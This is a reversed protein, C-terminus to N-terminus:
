RGGYRALLWERWAPEFQDLPQGTVAAVWDAMSDATNFADLMLPLTERGYMELIYQVVLRSYIWPDLENQSYLEDATAWLSALSRWDVGSVTSPPQWSDMPLGLSPADLVGFQAAVAEGQWLLLEWLLGWGRAEEPPPVGGQLQPWIASIIIARYDWESDGSSSMWAPSVILIAQPDPQFPTGAPNAVPVVAYTAPSLDLQFNISTAESATRIIARIEDIFPEDWSWYTITIPGDTLTFPGEEAFLSADALADAFERLVWEDGIQQFFYVAVWGQGLDATAVAWGHGRTLETVDPIARSYIQGAPAWPVAEWDLANQISRRQQPFLYSNDGTVGTRRYTPKVLHSPDAVETLWGFYDASSIISAVTAPRFSRTLAAQHVCKVSQCDFYSIDPAEPPTSSPDYPATLSQHDMMETLALIFSRTASLGDSANAEDLWRVGPLPEADLLHHALWFSSLELAAQSTPGIEHLGARAFLDYAIHRGLSNLVLPEPRNDCPWRVRLPSPLRYHLKLLPSAAPTPAPDGTMPQLMVGGASSTVPEASYNVFAPDFELAITFPEAPCPLLGCFENLYSEVQDILVRAQDEERAYFSITVHSTALQGPQGLDIPQWDTHLWREDQQRYFWFLRYPTGGWTLKVEAYASDADILQLDILEVEGAPSDSGAFWREPPPQPNLRYSQSDQLQEYIERDHANLAKIELNVVSELGARAPDTDPEPEPQLDIRGGMFWLIYIVTIAVAILGAALWLWRPPGPRPPPPIPDLLPSDDPPLTEYEITWDLEPSM